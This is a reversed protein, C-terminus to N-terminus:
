HHEICWHEVRCNVATIIALWTRERYTRDPLCEICRISFQVRSLLALPYFCHLAQRCPPALVAYPSRIRLRSPRVSATTRVATARFLAPRRIFLRRLTSAQRHFRGILLAPALCHASDVYQHGIAAFIALQLLAIIRKNVHASESQLQYKSITQKNTQKTWNKLKYYQFDNYSPTLFNIINFEFVFSPGCNNSTFRADHM